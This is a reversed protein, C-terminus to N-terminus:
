HTQSAASLISVTVISLLTHTCHPKLAKEKVVAARQLLFFCAFLLCFSEMFSLPTVFCDETPEDSCTVGTVNCMAM